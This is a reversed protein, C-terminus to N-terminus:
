AVAHLIVLILSAAIWHSLAQMTLLSPDNGSSIFVSCFYKSNITKM